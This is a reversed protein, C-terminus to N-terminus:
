CPLGLGWCGQDIGRPKFGKEEVTATKRREEGGGVRVVCLAAAAIAL